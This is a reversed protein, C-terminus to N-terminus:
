NAGNKEGYDLQTSADSPQCFPQLRGERLFLHLILFAHPCHTIKGSDIICTGLLADVTLPTVTFADATNFISRFSEKQLGVVVLCLNTFSHWFISHRTIVEALSSMYDDNNTQRNAVKRLFKWISKMFNETLNAIPWLVSIILNQHRDPDPDTDSCQYSM